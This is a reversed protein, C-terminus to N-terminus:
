NPLTAFLSSASFQGPTFFTGYNGFTSSRKGTGDIFVVPSVFTLLTNPAVGQILAVGSGVNAALPRRLGMVPLISAVAGNEFTFLFVKGDRSTSVPSAGDGVQQQGVLRSESLFYVDSYNITWSEQTSLRVIDCIEIAWPYDPNTSVAVLDDSASWSAVLDDSETLKTGFPLPFSTQVEFATNLIVLDLTGPVSLSDLVAAILEGSQSWACTRVSLEASFTPEIEKHPLLAIRGDITSMILTGDARASVSRFTYSDLNRSELGSTDIARFESDGSVPDFVDLHNPSGITTAQPDLEVILPLTDSSLQPISPVICGACHLLGTTMLVIAPSRM